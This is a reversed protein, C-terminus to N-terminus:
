GGDADCKRIIDKRFGRGWRQYGIIYDGEYAAYDHIMIGCDHLEKLAEESHFPIKVKNKKAM